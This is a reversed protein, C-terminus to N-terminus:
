QHEFVSWYFDFLRNAVEWCHGRDKEHKTVSNNWHNVREGKEKVVIIGFITPKVLFM